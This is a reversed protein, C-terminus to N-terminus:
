EKKNGAETGAADLAAFINADEQNMIEQRAKQVARDIVSFRRNRKYFLTKGRATISVRNHRFGRKEEYRDILNFRRSKVDSIKITPNSFIQFQPVTVRTGFIGKSVKGRSSIRIKNHKFGKFIIPDCFDIGRDYTPMAGSPLLDVILNRRAIGQYPLSKRIGRSPKNKKIIKGRNNIIVPHEM